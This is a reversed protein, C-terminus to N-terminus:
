ALIYIISWTGMPKGEAIRGDTLATNDGSHEDCNTRTCGLLRVLMTLESDAATPLLIVSATAIGKGETGILKVIGEPDEGFTKM